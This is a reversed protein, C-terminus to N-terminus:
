AAKAAPFASARRPTRQRKEAGRLWPFRADLVAAHRHRYVREGTDPIEPVAAHVVASACLYVRVSAGLHMM